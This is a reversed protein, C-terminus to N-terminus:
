SRISAPLYSIARTVGLPERDFQLVHFPLIHLPGSPVLVVRRHERIRAAIPELLLEALSSEDISQEVQSLARRLEM